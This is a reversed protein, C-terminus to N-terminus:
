AAAPILNNGLLVLDVAKSVLEAYAQFQAPLIPKVTDIGADVQKLIAVVKERFAAFNPASYQGAVAYFEGNSIAADLHDNIVQDLNKLSATGYDTAM